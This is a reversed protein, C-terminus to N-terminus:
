ALAVGGAARVRAIKVSAQRRAVAYPDNAFGFKRKVGSKLRISAIRNPNKAAIGRTANPSFEPIPKPLNKNLTDSRKQQIEGDKDRHRKDLGPEKM